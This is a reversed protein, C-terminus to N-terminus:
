WKGGDSGGGDGGGSLELDAVAVVVVVVMVVRLYPVVLLELDPAPSLQGLVDALTARRKRGRCM